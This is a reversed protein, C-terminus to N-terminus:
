PEVKETAPTQGSRAARGEDLVARFNVNEAVFYALGILTVPLYQAFWFFFSASLALSGSVGFPAVAQQFFWQMTGIYGPASPLMVGISVVGLLLIPARLGLELDFAVLTFHYAAVFCGWVLGSVVLTVITDRLSRFVGLGARFSDLQRGIRAGWRSKGGPFRHVFTQAPSATRALLAHTVFAVITALAV